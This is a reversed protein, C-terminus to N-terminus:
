PSTIKLRLYRKTLSNGDDPVTDRVEVTFNPASGTEIVFGPGSTTAGATSAGLDTWTVLDSSGQVIYSLDTALSSRHFLMSLYTTGSYNKLTVTPLGSLSAMTPDLGLAYELLNALGDQEYDFTLVADSGILGFSAIYNNARTATNLAFTQTADPAVGNTATVMIGSYTGTGGDTATGSLVGAASLGLGPPLTGVLSFTPPPNGSAMFTFSYPTGVIVPSPPPGNTIAPAQNSVCVNTSTTVSLDWGGAFTGIDGSADDVVYLSWTGNGSIGAFASAFTDSGATAPTLYPAAPAPAPFLDGTTYNTPRFSGSVPTGSSPIIAAASDDLTYTQGTWDTGGIVDSMVIFKQGIPSVLLVDVDSPFTHSMNKLTVMVKTVPNTLGSVVINSPYPTASAGTTSGTGSAPITIAAPNSFTQTSTSVTGLRLTYTVTGLSTVGDQLALTLTINNGCTGSATFSFSRSVSAGGAVVIGYTQPGSPSTVGGTAQLTGVLNVTNGAGTNILPLSVTVLEGPDPAGNPPTFNETTVTALGGSAIVPTGGCCVSGNSVRVTDVWWGTAATSSDSGMRFRLKITQGNVNPGLNAVTDIYGSSSGTWAQRGAIPSSFATSITGNYGGSVFSGGVTASTIDTFVGGNINPSSVELVGGDFTSELNYNNRFSVRAATSTVIIAPTDLHKDSVSAPDDIFADNPATDPTTTSTVWLPAAGSVNAAAWGAPLGPAVVGDFNESLAINVFGTTFTYTITGFNTAGDQLQLTAVLNSGCALNGATFTFSRAVTTGGATVVGYTQPGSPSTVGGTAQLTAVLNTTNATGTNKIGLSVTVVENPDIIGNSNCSDATVVATDAVPQPANVFKFNGIRTQWSGGTATFYETTYWFTSDDVPDVTMASYDGWRNGNGSQSGTGAVLTAESQPLTNLPDSALRGAYRIQPNISTSSASYGIALNGAGDMAASGLWRWTSDPQYTSEQYVTVPGATVNRLEFWRVGSVGGVSVSYNGVVSEHDGFNRYALRFM